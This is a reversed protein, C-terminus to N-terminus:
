RVPAAPAGVEAWEVRDLRFQRREGKELDMGNLLTLSRELVVREVRITRISASGNAGVYRM